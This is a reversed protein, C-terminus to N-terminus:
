SFAPMSFIFASSLWAFSFDLWIWRIVELFDVISFERKYKGYKDPNEKVYSILVNASLKKASYSVEIGEPILSWDTFMVQM